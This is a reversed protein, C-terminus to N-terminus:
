RTEDKLFAYQKLKSNTKSRCAYKSSADLSHLDMMLSYRKSFHVNHTM